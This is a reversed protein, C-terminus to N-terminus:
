GASGGDLDDNVVDRHAYVCARLRQVAPCPPAWASGCLNPESQRGASAYNTETYGCQLCLVCLGATSRRPWALVGFVTRSGCENCPEPSHRWLAPSPAQVSQLFLRVWPPSAPRRPRLHGQLFVTLPDAPLQDPHRRDPFFADIRGCGCVALWREGWDDSISEWAPLGGCAACREGGSAETAALGEDNASM